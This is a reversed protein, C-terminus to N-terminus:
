LIKKADDIDLLNRRSNKFITFSKGKIINDYFFNTLTHPNKNKGVIEPLRIILYRSCIKKIINEIIIKNKM